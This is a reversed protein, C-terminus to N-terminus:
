EPAAAEEKTAWDVVLHRGYLHAAALAQKATAADRAREFDVFAFGRHRGDYRKPLRVTALPGFAAFLDRVDNQTTAFALNRVM